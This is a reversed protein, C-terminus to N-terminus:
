SPSRTMVLIRVPDQMPPPAGSIQEGGAVIVAGGDSSRGGVLEVQGPMPM